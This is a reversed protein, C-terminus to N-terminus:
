QPLHRLLFAEFCPRQWVLHIGNSEATSRAARARDPDRIAQDEDLLIFRKEPAIRTRKLKEIEQIAKQVRALPDGAGPALIKIQLHVSVDQERAFGQLLAAYGGESQGECGVFIPMRQPIQPRRYKM